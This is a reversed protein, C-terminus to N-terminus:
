LVVNNSYRSFAVFGLAMWAAFANVYRFAAFGFCSWHNAPWGRQIYQLMEEFQKVTVTALSVTYSYMPLSTICYLFDAFALNVIFITTYKLPSRNFGLIRNSQAWPIALLTLLNGLAGFVAM